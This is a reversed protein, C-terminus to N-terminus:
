NCENDQPLINEVNLIGKGIKVSNEYNQRTINNSLENPPSKTGPSKPALRKPMTPKTSPTLPSSLKRQSSIGISIFQTPPPLQHIPQVPLVNEVTHSNNSTNNEVVSKQSRVPQNSNSISDYQSNTDNPMRLDDAAVSPITPQLQDTPPPSQDLVTTSNGFKSMRFRNSLENWAKTAPSMVNDSKQNLKLTIHKINPHFSNSSHRYTNLSQFTPSSENHSSSNLVPSSITTEKSQESEYKFKTLANSLEFLRTEYLHCEHELLEIKTDRQKLQFELHEIQSQASNYNTDIEILKRNLQTIQIKQQESETKYTELQKNVFDNQNISKTRQKIYHQKLTENIAIKDNSNRLQQLTQQLENIRSIQVQTQLTLSSKEAQASQFDIKLLDIQRQYKENDLEISSITLTANNLQEQYKNILDNQTKSKTENLQNLLNLRANLRENERSLDSYKTKWQSLELQTENLAYAQSQSELLFKHHQEQLEYFKKKLLEVQLQNHKDIKEQEIQITKIQQGHLEALENKQQELEELHKQQLLRIQEANINSTFNIETHSETIPKSQHKIPKFNSAPAESLSFAHTNDDGDNPQSIGLLVSTDESTPQVLATSNKLNSIVNRRSIYESSVQQGSRANVSQPNIPPFTETLDLTESNSAFSLELHNDNDEVNNREIQKSVSNTILTLPQPHASVNPARLDNASAFSSRFPQNQV